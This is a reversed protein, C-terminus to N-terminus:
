FAWTRLKKIMDLYSFGNDVDAQSHTRSEVGGYIDATVEFPLNYYVERPVGGSLASPILVGFIYKFCGIEKFQQTHGYEHRVVDVPAPRENANRSLFIWGFSGSRKFNTRLLFTGKYNSFYNSELVKEESENNKDYNQFDNVIDSGFDVIPQVINDNVWNAAEVVWQPWNGSSDSFNIPNNFCYTYQNYGM